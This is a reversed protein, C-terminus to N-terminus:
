DSVKKFDTIVGNEAKIEFNYSNDIYAPYWGFLFDIVDTKEPYCCDLYINYTSVTGTETHKDNEIIFAGTRRIFELANECNDGQYLGAFWKETEKGHNFNLYSGGVSSNANPLYLKHNIKGNGDYFVFIFSVIDSFDYEEYDYYGFMGELDYEDYYDENLEDEECFCLINRYISCNNVRADEFCMEMFEKKDFSLLHKSLFSEYGGEYKEFGKETLLKEVEKIDSGFKVTEYLKKQEATINSLYEEESAETFTTADYWEYKDYAFGYVTLFCVCIFSLIATIKKLSLLYPKKRPKSDSMLSWFSIMAYAVLVVINVPVALDREPAPSNTIYCYALYGANFIPYFLGSTIVSAFAMVVYAACMGSLQKNLKQRCCKITHVTLFVFGALFATLEMLSPFHHMSPEVFYWYGLGFWSVSLLNVTCMGLFLLVGKLESDKYLSEFEAKVEEGEGMQEIAKEFAAAENYGIEMYFDARDCIHCELEARLRSKTTESIKQPIVSNLYDDVIKRQQM